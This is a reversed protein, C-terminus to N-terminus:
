NKCSLTNYHKCATVLRITWNRFKAGSAIEAGFLNRIQKSLVTDLGSIRLVKLNSLMYSMKDVRSQVATTWTRKAAPMYM